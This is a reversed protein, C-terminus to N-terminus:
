WLRNNNLYEKQLTLCKYFAKVATHHGVYKEVIAILKEYRTKVGPKRKGGIGNVMMRYDRAIKQMIHYPIFLYPKPNETSGPAYRNLENHLRDHAGREISIALNTRPLFDPFVYACWVLHHRSMTKNKSQRKLSKTESGNKHNKKAVYIV